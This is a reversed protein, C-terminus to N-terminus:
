WQGRMREVARALADDVGVNGPFVVYRLDPSLSDPGPDWVSVQGPFLQGVVRGRRMGLARVALDHSTIGGKAVLWAPSAGVVVARVIEVLADAVVKADLLSAGGHSRHAPKRSTALAVDGRGLTGVVREVLDAVIARREYAPTSLLRAVDLEIVPIEHREQAVALQRSTLATFSGVALLGHGSRGSLEEARLPPAPAQGARASLFAPGTRYVMSAGADEAHQVGAALIALDEDSAADFVVYDAVSCFRRLRWAVREPGGGRVDRLSVARVAVPRQAREHVWDVLRSARYGFAPDAAYETRGVPLWEDEVRVLHVGDVTIRGAAPYAPCVVVFDVREGAARLGDVLADTEAPFHGRLTSDGRSIVRLPFRREAATRALREGLLRNVAVAEASPLARSNTLVAMLPQAQTLAWHVEEPAWDAILPLRVTQTGTPDDDVVAIRTGSEELRERV